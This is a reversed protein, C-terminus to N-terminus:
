LIPIYQSNRFDSFILSPIYLKTEQVIIFIPNNIGDLVRIGVVRDSPTLNADLSFTITSIVSPTKSPPTITAWSIGDGYDVLEIVADKIGIYQTSDTIALYSYRASSPRFLSTNVLDSALPADYIDNILEFSDERKTLNSTLKNIIYRTNGIVLRDNLKLSNLISLPLIGKYTYLRRKNSFIDSIYDEYFRSYITDENLNSTYENYEAHFNLGFSEADIIRTHSPMIVSTSIPDYATGSGKFGIPNAAVNTSLGYLMFPEGSISNLDRDFYPCYQITTQSNTDLDSLREFIPNEFISEIELTTGDLKEDQTEDTYLTLEENGYIRNNTQNFEDALIQESEEFKFDIENFIVGKDVQKTKTDIYQTVDIIAGSAYWTQLDEIQIDEGSQTVILNFTKFMSTLFKYTKIDKILNTIISQLDITVNTYTNPFGVLSYPASFQRIYQLNTDADFVLDEETLVELKVDVNLTPPNISVEKSQVGYLFNTSEHLVSGNISMRIKYGISNDDPTITASYKISPNLVGDGLSTTSEEEVLAIGNALSDTSNNLNVYIDKFLQSDFFGGVFNFLYKKEIAEIILSLKIAPKLDSFSVGSNRGFDYAINVADGLTDVSTDSSYFYQTGYSILPYIIAKEYLTGDVTFDLGNILGQKVIVDSYEHDFNSLWALDRLKDDGILDKVKIADGFFTIKYSVPANDEIKVGNLQIKGTKFPLTNINIIANKRTRADFGNDIDQNYYNKFLINNNRSAPVTFSQSFDAFLKSIDKVDQVGQTISITEDEFLDLRQGEIYVNVIM